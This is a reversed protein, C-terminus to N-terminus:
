WKRFTDLGTGRIGRTVTRGYGEFGNTNWQWLEDAAQTVSGEVGDNRDTMLKLENGQSCFSNAWIVGRMEADSSLTFTGKGLAVWASPLSNGSINLIYSGNSLRDTTCNGPEDGLASTIVFSEPKNNCTIQELNVGCLLSSGSLEIRGSLESAISGTIPLELHLVIPRNENEILVKTNKLNMHELYMHCEGSENTQELCIDDQSIRVTWEKLPTETWATWGETSSSGGWGPYFDWGDASITEGSIESDYGDNITPNGEYCLTDYGDNKLRWGSKSLSGEKKYRDGDIIERCAKKAKLYNEDGKNLGTFVQLYTEGTDQSTISIDEAEELQDSDHARTCVVKNEGCHFEDQENESDDFSWVRVSDSNDPMTDVDKYKEYLSTSPFGRNLVPWIRSAMTSLQGQIDSQLNSPSCGVRGSSDPLMEQFDDASEVDWIILGAGSIYSPGLDFHKAALVGWHDPKVVRSNVYLSRTLLTRALSDEDSSGVRKVIGEITFIGQGQGDDGPSSYGRLRYFTQISQKGDKRQTKTEDQIFPLSIITESDGAGVHGTPWTAEENATHIPLGMSTDTCLEELPEAETTNIQAWRFGSNPKNTNSQNNLTFLFGRYNDPDNRNLEGLIRNFGNFAAAEAMQQYSESAGLKRAMLQRALLGTVGALLTLGTLLALLLALGEEGSYNKRRYLLQKYLLGLNLRTKGM